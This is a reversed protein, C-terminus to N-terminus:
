LWLLISSVFSRCQEQEMYCPDTTRSTSKKTLPHLINKNETGARDFSTMIHKHFSIEIGLCRSLNLNTPKWKFEFEQALPCKGASFTVLSLFFRQFRPDVFELSPFFQICFFQQDEIKVKSCWRKAVKERATLEAKPLTSFWLRKMVMQQFFELLSSRQLKAPVRM